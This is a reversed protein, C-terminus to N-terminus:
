LVRPEDRPYVTVTKIEANGYMGRRHEHTTLLKVLAEHSTRARVLEKITSYDTLRVWVSWLTGQEKQAPVAPSRTAWVHALPDLRVTKKAAM